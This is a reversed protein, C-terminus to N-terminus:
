MVRWRRPVVVVFGMDVTDEQDLLVVQIHYRHDYTGDNALYVNHLLPARFQADTHVPVIDHVVCFWTYRLLSPM